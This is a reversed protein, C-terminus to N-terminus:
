QNRMQPKCFHTKTSVNKVNTKPLFKKSKSIFNLLWNVSSVFHEVVIQEIRTKVQEINYM